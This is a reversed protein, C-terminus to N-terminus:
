LWAMSTEKESGTVCSFPPMLSSKKAYNAAIGEGIVGTAIGEISYMMNTVSSDDPLGYFSILNAGEHLELCYDITDPCDEQNCEYIGGGCYVTGPGGCIGCEDIEVTGGCEGLCDYYNYFCDPYEDSCDLVLNFDYGQYYSFSIPNGNNDSVVIGSLGSAEGELSLTLLDGCGAPLLAGSLSFGIVTYDNFSVFFGASEADGGSNGIISAGDVDFQFGAFPVSSNYIITGDSNLFLTLDPLDCGDLRNNGLDVCEVTETGPNGLGDGDTDECLTEITSTGGCVAACDVVHGECDCDGDPIGFEGSSGCGCEQQIGDGDCVGCEDFEATGFCFGYCDMDQNFGDCVNCDDILNSECFLDDDLDDSNPAWGDPAYGLCFDHSIDGSGWGDNDSDLFHTTTGTSACAGLLVRVNPNNEEDLYFDSQDATINSIERMNFGNEGIYLYLEYDSSLSDLAESDWSLILPIDLSLGGGTSGRIGWSLLDYSQHISRFDTSFAIQNCINGNQDQQGYWDLHFFHINTFEGSFPDPYDDEDEGFKWGDSCGTCNGLQITHDAGIGSSDVATISIGWEEAVVVSFLLLTIVM